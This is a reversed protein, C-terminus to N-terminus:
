HQSEGTHLAKITAEVGKLCQTQLDANAGPARNNLTIRLQKVYQEVGGPLESDSDFRCETGPETWWFEKLLPLVEYPARLLAAVLSQDLDERAGADTVTYLSHAIRLWRSDGSRIGPLVSTQWTGSRMLWKVTDPAGKSNEFSIVQQPTVTRMIPETPGSAAAALTTQGLMLEALLLLILRM